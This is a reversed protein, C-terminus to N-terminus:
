INTDKEDVDGKSKKFKNKVIEWDDQAQKYLEELQKRTKIDKKFVKIHFWIAIPFTILKEPSWPLYIFAIYSRAFWVLWSPLFDIPAFAIVYWLGNTIVWAAGFAILFRWSAFPRLYTKWRSQKM